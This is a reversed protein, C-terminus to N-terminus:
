LSDKFHLRKIYSYINQNFCLADCRGAKKPRRATDIQRDGADPPLLVRVRGDPNSSPWCERRTSDVLTFIDRLRPFPPRASCLLAALLTKAAKM